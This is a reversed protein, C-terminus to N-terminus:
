RGRFRPSRKEAFAQTAERVLPFQPILDEPTEDRNAKYEPYIDNRFNARAADFIVAMYPAHYDRLMKLLMNTYGYVAGVPTGDPSTMPKQRSYAMAYYARFIFGSGDILYLEDENETSMDPAKQPIMYLLHVFRYPFDLV